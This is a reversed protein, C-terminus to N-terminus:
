YTGVAHGLVRELPGEGFVFDASQVAARFAAIGTETDLQGVATGSNLTVPVTPARDPRGLWAWGVAIAIVLLLIIPLKKM